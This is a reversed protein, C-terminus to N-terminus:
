DVCARVLRLAFLLDYEIQAHALSEKVESKHRKLTKYFINCRLCQLSQFTLKLTVDFRIIESQWALFFESFFLTM